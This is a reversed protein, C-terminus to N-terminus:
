KKKKYKKYPQTPASSKKKPAHKQSKKEQQRLAQEAEFKKLRCKSMGRDALAIWCLAMITTGMLTMFIFVVISMFTGALLLLMPAFSLITVLAASIPNNVIIVLANKFTQWVTLDYATYLGMMVVPILMLPAGIIWSFVVACYDGAGATGLSQVYLLHMTATLIASGILIGVTATILFKLCYKAFGLWYTRFAKKYYDQYYSRKAAYFVGSMGFSAIILTAAIMLAVPEHVEWYLRAVSLSLSDGGGPYGVGVDAMFNFSNGLTLNQFYAAFWFLIVAFPAAFILFSLTSKFLLSFEGRFVKFARSFPTEPYDKKPRAEVLGAVVVKQPEEPEVRVSADTFLKELLLKKTRPARKDKQNQANNSM